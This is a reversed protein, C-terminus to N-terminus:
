IRRGAAQWYPERLRRKFIKGSDERPLGTRFEVRRPVKYGAVRARLWAQVQAGDLGAGGEPEVVALLAEGFEEDPVGFVACDRVGPMTALAAEIEAPFINVGGSIVMDKSRDSIYLFGDEDVHGVDGLTFLAPDRPHTCAARLEPRGHYTFGPYARQEVYITGTAGRPLEAGQADAICVRAHPLPRGVSGPKRLWQASGIAAVPGAEGGGYFEHVVPGWWAILARKVEPPCPAAGHLVFRLSSLDHRERVSPPLKLLRHMLTPVLYLHSIRHQAIRALCREAEFRPEVVLCEAVAMAQMAYAV